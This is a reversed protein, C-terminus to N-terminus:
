DGGARAELGVTQDAHRLIDRLTEEIPYRPSWDLIQRAKSADGVFRQIDGPRARSKDYSVTVEVGSIAIMAELLSRMRRPIGSAINLITGSPIRDSVVVARVYAEAVDRADLFDREAELDGVQLHAPRLGARIEAIQRAFNPLAFKDSQRPGTHNFPRFRVCRLGENALAGLALDAAAKTAMQVNSPVLVTEEDLAKGSLAAAGYIQGSGVFLLMCDPVHRMVSRALNLTGFVHVRWALEEDAAAAAITSLGALHVIHTPREVAVLREVAEAEAVDLGEVPGLEDDSMGVRGTAVINAQAGLTRRLAAVVYRGVFGQAGTVMVKM